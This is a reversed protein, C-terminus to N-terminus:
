SGFFFERIFPMIQNLLFLFVLSAPWFWWKKLIPPNWAKGRPLHHLPRYDKDEHFSFEQNKEAERSASEPSDSPKIPKSQKSM